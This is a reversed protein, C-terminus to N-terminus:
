NSNLGFTRSGLKRKFLVERRLTESESTSKDLIQLITFQLDYRRRSNRAVLQRLRKNGGHGNMAYSQWRALLGGAGAASGVYQRGTRRDTILYVGGVSSLARIWDKHSVPKALIGTLEAFSLSFELFGPFPRVFGPTHIEVVEKDRDPALTQVWARLSAGWAVVVRRELDAFRDDRELRYVYCHNIRMTPYPFGRPMRASGRPARGLVRYVGTLQAQGGDEGLFSVLLDCRDFVPRSQWAQYNEFFGTQDLLTLDWRSDRHRVLKVRQRPVLGRSSLLDLLGIM